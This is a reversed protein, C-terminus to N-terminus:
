TLHSLFFPYYFFFSLFLFIFDYLFMSSLLYHFSISPQLFPFCTQFSFFPTLSPPPTLFLSYFCFTSVPLTYPSKANPFFFPVFPFALPLFQHSSFFSLRLRIPSLLSVSHSPPFFLFTFFLIGSLTYSQHPSHYLLSFPYTFPFLVSFLVLSIFFVFIMYPFPTFFVLLFCLPFISEHSITVSFCFFPILYYSASIFPGM